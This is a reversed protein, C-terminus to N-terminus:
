PKLSALEDKETLGELIEVWETSVIGPKVVVAEDKGKLKVKNGFSLYGRPILLANQKQAVMINAELQTGTIAFDLPKDFAIKCIFSQTSEDFMPLIETVTAQYLVDKKVNLKVLAKQGVKVKAISNEDVNVKAIISNTNGITAIVDGKKVYDGTQKFRKLVKGATLARIKNFDTNAWNIANAANQSLEQQKAQLKLAEYQQKLSKLNAESNEYTLQMNEYEVKAVSNNEYLKKYRLAQNQDQKLKVEAFEINSKLQQLAPAQDTTNFKAIQLQEKSALFNATNTKNDVVALIQNLKVFDGDSFAVHLLYGDTQATLSYKQDADLVGSAFVTETIDKHIPFVAQEKSKSCSFFLFVSSVVVFVHKM